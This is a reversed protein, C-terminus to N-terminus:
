FSTFYNSEQVGETYVLSFLWSLLKQTYTHLIEASPYSVPYPHRYKPSWTLSGPFNQLINKM